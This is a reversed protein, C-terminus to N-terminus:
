EGAPGNGDGAQEDAASGRKARNLVYSWQPLLRFGNRWHWLLSPGNDLAFTSALQSFGMKLLANVAHALLATGYGQRAEWWSVFVWTLHPVGLRKEIADAPPKSKWVGAFPTTLVEPPVLTILIAGLPDPHRDGFARFCAPEIVPGDGGTATQRIADEAAVRAREKDLSQYPQAHANAHLFLDALAPIDAAPLPRVDFGDPPPLPALDLVGTFTKPRPSLVARGGFFEYKYAANRPLTHFQEITIPLEVVPYHSPM